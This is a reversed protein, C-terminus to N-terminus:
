EIKKGTLGLDSERIIPLMKDGYALEFLRDYNTTIITKIHPIKALTQHVHSACPKKMFIKRLLMNLDDRKNGKLRVYQEALEPLALNKPIDNKERPSLSDYITECLAVGSPYGAYISLGSGAWLVAEESRILEFISEPNM